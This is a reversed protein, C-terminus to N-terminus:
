VANKILDQARDSILAGFNYKILHAEDGMKKHGWFILKQGLSLIHKLGSESVLNIHPHLYNVDRIVDRAQFIEWLSVDKDLLLGRITAPFVAKVERLINPDFSSVVIKLKKQYPLLVELITKVHFLCTEKLEVNVLSQAPFVELVELLTPITYVRPYKPSSLSLNDLEKKLCQDIPKHTHALRKLERDHFVVPIGDKTMQVDFEVGDVGASFASVFAPLTNELHESTLGRHALILNRKVDHFIPDNNKRAGKMWAAIELRM